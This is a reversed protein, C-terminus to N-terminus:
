SEALKRLVVLDQDNNMGREKFTVLDLGQIWKRRIYDETHYAAQYYDPLGDLKLAGTQGTQFYFGAQKLRSRDDAPLYRQGFTGHITAILLGRPALVRRLEALWLFQLREDLHTFLSIVYVTDFTGNPYPLPPEYGTRQFNAFSALNGRCWSIANDDVDCGHLELQPPHDKFHRIVRGCGCSFDLVSRGGYLDQGADQAAQRIALACDRGIRLFTKAKFSGGVRHRLKPPPLAMGDDAAPRWNHALDYSVRNGRLLAYRMAGYAAYLSPSSKVLSRAKELLM